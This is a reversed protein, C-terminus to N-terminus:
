GQKKLVLKWDGFEKGLSTIGKLDLKITSINANTKDARAILMIACTVATLTNNGNKGENSGIIMATYKVMRGLSENDFSLYSDADEEEKTLTLTAM